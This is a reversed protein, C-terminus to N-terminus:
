PGSEDGDSPVRSAEQVLDRVQRYLRRNAIQPDLGEAVFVADTFAAVSAPPAECLRQKEAPPLCFGLRVALTDLLRSAAERTFM